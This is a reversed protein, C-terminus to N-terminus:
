WVRWWPDDKGQSMSEKPVEDSITADDDGVLPKEVPVVRKTNVIDLYVKTGIQRLKNEALPGSWDAHELKEQLWQWNFGSGPDVKRGPAIQEHGVIAEIPCHSLDEFILKFLSDYQDSMFGSTSTGVLEYGLSYKNCWKRGAWESKGAHWCTTSRHGFQIVEGQRGIVYHASVKADPNKFWSATGSMSMSGTYHIVSLSVSDVDREKKSKNPTTEHLHEM